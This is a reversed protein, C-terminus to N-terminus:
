VIPLNEVNDKFIDAVNEITLPKPFVGEYNKKFNDDIFNNGSSSYIKIPYFRKEDILARIINTMMNGNMTNMQEDTVIFQYKIEKIFGKYIKYICEIGDNSEEISVDIGRENFYKTIININCNRLVQEDEVVLAYIKKKEVINSLDVFTENLPIKPLQFNFPKVFASMRARNLINFSSRRKNNIYKKSIELFNNDIKKSYQITTQLTHNDIPKVLLFTERKTLEESNNNKPFITNKTNLNVNSDNNTTLPATSAEILNVLNKQQISDTKLLTNTLEKYKNINKNLLFSIRTGKNYKSEVKFDKGLIKVIDKVVSLGLGSGFKNNESNSKLFLTDDQNLRDVQEQKMGIGTDTVMMLIYDNDYNSCELTVCGMKTFKLSNSLLNIIIQKVRIEDSYIYEEITKDIEKRILVKLNKNKWINRILDVSFNVVLEFNVKKIDIETLNTAERLNNLKLALFEFDKTVYKMYESYDFISDLKNIVENIGVNEIFTKIELVLTQIAALPNKIEHTIKSNLISIKSLIEINQSVEIPFDLAVAFYNIQDNYPNVQIFVSYQKDINDFTIAGLYYVNIFQEKNDRIIAFFTNIKELFNKEESKLNNIQEKIINSINENRIKIKSFILKKIIINLGDNIYIKPNDNLEDRESENRFYLLKDLDERLQSKEIIYRISPNFNFVENRKFSVLVFTNNLFLKAYYDIDKIRRYNIFWEIKQFKEHFYSALCVLISSILCIFFIFSLQIYKNLFTETFFILINSILHTIFHIIFSDNIFHMFSMAIFMEILSYLATIKQFYLYYDTNSISLLVYILLKYCFIHVSTGFYILVNRYILSNKSAYFFVINILLFISLLLVLFVRLHNLISKLNYYSIISSTITFISLLLEFISFAINIKYNYFKDIYISTIEDDLFNLTIPHLIHSDIKNLLFFKEM